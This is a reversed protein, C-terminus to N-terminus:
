EDEAKAPFFRAAYGGLPGDGIELSLGGCPIMCHLHPHLNLLSGWSHLISTFGLRANLVGWERATKATGDRVSNAILYIAGAVSVYVAWKTFLTLELSCRGLNVNMRM